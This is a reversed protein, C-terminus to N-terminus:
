GAGEEARGMAGRYWRLARGEAARLLHNLLYGLTGLLLIGGYMEPIRGGLETAKVYFGLGGTGAVMEATVTVILAVASSVRMGTTIFPLASPVVVRLLVEWRAFGFIRASDVLVPDANYVGYMTNFLLPWVAAYCAVAFRMEEGIGLLLIAVPIIAVSPIPRLMEILVASARRVLRIRGLLVGWPVGIALALALGRAYATLTIWIHRPIEGTELERVLALLVRSPPPFFAPHLIGTQSVVEWVAVAGLVSAWRDFGRRESRM